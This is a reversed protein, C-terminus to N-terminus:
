GGEEPAGPSVPAGTENPSGEQESNRVVKWVGRENRILKDIKLRTLQPSLSTRPLTPNWRQNIADLIQLATRGQPWAEELLAIVMEKITRPKREAETPSFLGLDQEAKTGSKREKYVREAIDLEMLEKRLESRRRRLYELFDNMSGIYDPLVRSAVYFNRSACVELSPCSNVQTYPRKTYGALAKRQDAFAMPSKDTAPPLSPALPSAQVPTVGWNSVRFLFPGPQRNPAPGM